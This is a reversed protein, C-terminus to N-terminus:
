VSRGPHSWDRATSTDRWRLVCSEFLRQPCQAAEECPGQCNSNNCFNVEDTEGYLKRRESHGILVWKLGSSVIMETSVEGTYAGFSTASCNQAGVSWDVRMQSQALHTHLFTPFVVVLETRCRSIHFRSGSGSDGSRQQVGSLAWWHIRTHSEAQEACLSSMMYRKELESRHITNAEVHVNLVFL